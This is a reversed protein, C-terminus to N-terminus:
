SERFSWAPKIKYHEIGTLMFMTVSSVGGIYRMFNSTKKKVTDVLM